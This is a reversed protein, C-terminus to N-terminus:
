DVESLITRCCGGQQDTTVVSVDHGAASLWAVKNLLVREMGGPNYLSCHCYVIKM